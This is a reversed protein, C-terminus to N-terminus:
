DDQVEPIELCVVNSGNALKALLTPFSISKKPSSWWNQTSNATVVVRASRELICNRILLSFCVDMGIQDRCCFVRSEATQKERPVCLPPLGKAPMRM